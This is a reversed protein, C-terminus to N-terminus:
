AHDRHRQLLVDIVSAALAGVVACGALIVAVLGFARANKM